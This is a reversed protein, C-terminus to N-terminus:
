HTVTAKPDEPGYPPLDLDAISEILVPDTLTLTTPDAQYYVIKGDYFHVEALYPPMVREMNRDWFSLRFGMLEDRLIPIYDLAVSDLFYSRHYLLYLYEYVLERILPRVDEVTQPKRSVMNVLWRGSQGDVLDKDGSNLFALGHQKCSSEAFINFYKRTVIDNGYAVSVYQDMFLMFCAMLFIKLM